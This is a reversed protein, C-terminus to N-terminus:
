LRLYGRNWELELISGMRSQGTVHSLTGQQSLFLRRDESPRSGSASRGNQNQSHKWGAANRRQLVGVAYEKREM